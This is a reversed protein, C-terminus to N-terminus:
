DLVFVLLRAAAALLTVVYSVRARRPIRFKLNQPAHERSAGLYNAASTQGASAAGGVAILRVARVRAVRLGAADSELDVRAVRSPEFTTECRRRGVVGCTVLERREPLAFPSAQGAELLQM